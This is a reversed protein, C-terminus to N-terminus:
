TRVTQVTVDSFRVFAIRHNFFIQYYKTHGKVLIHRTQTPSWYYDSNVLGTTVYQQGAKITYQLPVIKPPNKVSRPYASKEPYAMGYVPIAARGKRPTVIRGTGTVMTPAGAPDYLWAKQGGYDIADWDGQRDVRVFQQGTVAKDGWDDAKTTGPSGAPHLAPDGLLPANTDPATRLYVFNAPQTPVSGCSTSSTCYTAPQLNTAFPPNVTLIPGNGDSQTPLSAGLLDMYHQWDWYLGPDWHQATETQPTLGPVQDHGFIHARDLPIKYTAALYSVLAASSEYLQENYWTAGQIAVGEHEIGISHMNVYYDGAHWAIDEDPVMQTVQGDSSRIVYNASAYRVPNQFSSIASQYSGETDHIVVYRIAPGQKPRNAADYNGYDEPNNPNNVQYAAPVFRCDLEPPCQAKQQPALHLHLSRATQVDPTVRLPSLRVLQGYSTMRTMGRDITRYVADAFELAPGADASDSYEAVAGYWGAIAAPRKRTTHIAYRALM